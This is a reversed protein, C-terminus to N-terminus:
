KITVFFEDNGVTPLAMLPLQNNIIKQNETYTARGLQFNAGDFGVINGAVTGHQAAMVGTEHASAMGFWDITALSAAAMTTQGTMQRDVSEISEANILLRPQIDAGLDFSFAECAGAYGFLSFTTNAKSVPVPKIFKTLDMGVPMTPSDSIVGLLGTITFSWRAIQSPQFDLKWTGRCGLMIHKIAGNVFYITASEFNSSIPNYKVDTDVTIVEAMQSARLLPGYAPPTGPDGSGAVEVDFAIRAYNGTLIVGQHGMYPLILDRSVDQGVSPEFNFNSAQIANLAGTPTPDTGYATEIKVLLAKNRAYITM